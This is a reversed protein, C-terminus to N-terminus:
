VNSTEFSRSHCSSASRERSTSTSNQCAPASRPAVRSSANVTVQSRVVIVCASRSLPRTITFMSIASVTDIWRMLTTSVRVRSPSLRSRAAHPGGGPRVHVMRQHRESELHPEPLRLEVLAAGALRERDRTGRERLDGAELRRHLRLHDLLAAAVEAHD